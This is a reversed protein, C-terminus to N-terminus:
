NKALITSAQKFQDNIQVKESVVGYKDRLEVFYTGEKLSSLDYRQMFGEISKFKDARILEGQDNKIKIRVVTPEDNQYLVKYTVDNGPIIAAREKKSGNGSALATTMVTVIVAATLTLRKM